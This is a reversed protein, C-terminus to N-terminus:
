AGGLLLRQGRPQGRIGARRRYTRRREARRAAGLQHRQREAAVGRGRELVGATFQGAAVRQQQVAQQGRQRGFTDATGVSLNRVKPPEGGVRDGPVHQKTEGSHRREHEGDCPRDRHEAGRRRGRARGPEGGEVAAGRRVRDRHQHGLMEHRSFPAQPEQVREDPGGDVLVQGGRDALLPVLAGRSQEDGLARRQRLDGHVQEGGGGFAVRPDRAPQPFCRRVSAASPSWSAATASSSV